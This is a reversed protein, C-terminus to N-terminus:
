CLSIPPARLGHFRSAEASTYFSVYEGHDPKFDPTEAPDPLVEAVIYLVHFLHVHYPDGCASVKCRSESDTQTITAVVTEFVCEKGHDTMDDSHDAHGGGASDDKECHEMVVCVSDGHHHHPLVNMVLVMLAALSVLSISLRKKLPHM